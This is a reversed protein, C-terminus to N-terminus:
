TLITDVTARIAKKDIKGVSTKPIMTTFNIADPITWPTIKGAEVFQKMHSKLEEKSLSKGEKLVILAYPREGWKEDPIGVVAVEQVAELTGIMNELDISSVWEGGSKIV